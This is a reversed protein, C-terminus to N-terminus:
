FIRYLKDIHDTMLRDAEAKVADNLEKGGNPYDAKLGPRVEKKYGGLLKDSLDRTQEEWIKEKLKKFDEDSNSIGYTAVLLLVYPGLASKVDEFRYNVITDNHDVAVHQILERHLKDMNTLTLWGDLYVENISETFWQSYELWSLQGWVKRYLKRISGFACIIGRMGIDLNILEGHPFSNFKIEDVEDEIDRIVAHISDMDNHSGAHAGFRLYHFAHRAYDSIDMYKNELERLDSIYNRCPIFNQLLHIIGPLVRERFVERLEKATSQDIEEDSFAKKLHDIPQIDLAAEQDPSFDKGLLYHYLWDHIEEITKVAARSPVRNGHKEACRWDYFLLPMVSNDREDILKNDNDHSYQLIEQACISNISEDSLLIQRGRNPARAETNIYIFINRVVDLVRRKTREEQIARVSFLVIPITWNFFDKEDEGVQIDKAYRKLASLRHQGDIAVIKALSDDWEVTGYEPFGKVVKFRYYGPREFCEYQYGDQKLEKKEIFPMKADISSGDESLPLITLTLPNFFKVKNKDQFYPLLGKEVRENDVERQFLDRVKWTESGKIDSILTIKDLQRPQIATQLYFIQAGSGTGFEGFYGSLSQNFTKEIIPIDQKSNM